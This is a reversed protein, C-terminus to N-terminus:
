ISVKVMAYRIVKDKRIYGKQLVEIVKNKEGDTQENMVANHYSPDFDKNLADIEKVDYKEITSILEKKILGVGEKTNCDNDSIMCIAYDITDIIKLLSLIVETEGDFRAQQIAANNRKKYNEFEAQVRQAISKYEDAKSEVEIIQSKLEDNEISENYELIKEEIFEKNIKKSKTKTDGM